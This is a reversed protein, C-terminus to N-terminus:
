RVLLVPCGLQDLLTQITEAQVLQSEGGLVLLGGRLTQVTQVLGLINANPLSRYDAQLNYSQLLSEAERELQQAKEPIQVHNVILVTLAPPRSGKITEVLRVAMMLARKAAASGDYTVLVPLDIREGHQLLLVFGPASTAVTRATSGLRIRRSLPRSAVGLSLLDVEAAATLLEATVQGRVVRFSWSLRAQEAAEALARRAQAAQGRLDQELRQSEMQRTAGSPYHIEQAFPLGALRLLDIDEVFVGLLEAKLHAALQVAAQMAALSHSSTDLAVLIRKIVLEREEQSM